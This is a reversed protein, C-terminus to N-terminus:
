ESATRRRKSRSGVREIRAGTSPQEITGSPQIRRDDEIEQILDIPLFSRIALYFNLEMAALTTLMPDIKGSSTDASLIVKGFGSREKMWAMVRKGHATQFTKTFDQRMSAIRDRAREEAAKREAEKQDTRESPLQTRM